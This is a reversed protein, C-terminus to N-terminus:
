NRNITQLIMKNKSPPKVCCSKKQTNGLNAVSVSSTSSAVNIEASKRKDENEKSRCAPLIVMFLAVFLYLYNFIFKNFM